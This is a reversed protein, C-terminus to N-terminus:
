RGRRSQTGCVVALTEGRYFEHKEPSAKKLELYEELKYLRKQPVTSM